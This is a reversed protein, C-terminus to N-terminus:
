QNVIDKKKVIKKVPSALWKSGAVKYYLTNKSKASVETPIPYKGGRLPTLMLSDGKHIEEVAVDATSYCTGAPVDKLETKTLKHAKEVSCTMWGNEGRWFFTEPTTKAQWIIVFHHGEKKPGGPIGSISNQSYAELLRFHKVAKKPVKSGAAVNGAIGCALVLILLGAKM